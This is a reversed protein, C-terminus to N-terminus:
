SSSGCQTCYSSLNSEPYTVYFVTCWCSWRYPQQQQFLFFDSLALYPSYPTHPLTTINNQSLFTRVAFSTHSPANDHQLSWMNAIARSVRVVRSRLRELVQLYFIQNVTQGPPVFKKQVFDRKIFVHHYAPIESKIQENPGEKTSTVPIHAV